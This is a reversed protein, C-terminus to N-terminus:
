LRGNCNPAPTHTHPPPPHAHPQQISQRGRRCSCPCRARTDAGDCAWWARCWGVGWGCGFVWVWVGAVVDVKMDRYRETFADITHQFAVPDLLLTTVDWFMIGQKPFDPIGRISASIVAQRQEHSVPERAAAVPVVMTDSATQHQRSGGLAAAPTSAGARRRPPSAVVAVLRWAATPTVLPRPRAHCWALATSHLLLHRATLMHPTRALAQTDTAKCPVGVAGHARRRSRQRQQVDSSHRGTVAAHPSFPVSSYNNSRRNVKTTTCHNTSSPTALPNQRSFIRAGRWTVRRSAPALQPPNCTNAQATSPPCTNCAM